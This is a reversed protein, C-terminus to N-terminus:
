VDFIEAFLVFLFLAIDYLFVNTQPCKNQCGNTTTQRKQKTHKQKTNTNANQKTTKKPTNKKPPKTSKKPPKAPGARRKKYKDIKATAYRPAANLASGQRELRSRAVGVADPTPGVAALIVHVTRM